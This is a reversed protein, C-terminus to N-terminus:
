EQMPHKKHNPVPKSSYSDRICMKKKYKRFLHKFEHAYLRSLGKRNDIAEGVVLLTTLTLNNDRVIKALDKLEQRKYVDLHTYSVSGMCFYFLVTGGAGNNFSRSIIRIDSVACGNHYRSDRICM